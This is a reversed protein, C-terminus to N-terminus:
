PDALVTATGAQGDHTLATASTTRGAVYRDLFDVTAKDVVPQWRSGGAFPPLHGGGLLTLLFRPKTAQDYVARGEAPPDITDEDGQAVLLPPNPATGAVPAGSMAIVGRLAVSHQAAVGLATQAGDSHGAVAVRGTDVRAAVPSASAVLSSVVFAVDAPQNNLDNEDLAAGAVDADTLPFEPAAVVYGAAAWARCLHEYPAPGVQFGHAFVVLPWPGGSRPYWVLTTLARAASVTQGNSVTPRSHDVLAM